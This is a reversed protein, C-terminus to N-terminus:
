IGLTADTLPTPGFPDEYADISQVEIDLHTLYDELVEITVPGSKEFTYDEDDDDNDNQEVESEDPLYGPRSRDLYIDGSHHYILLSITVTTLAIVGSIIGLLVLNRGGRELKPNKDSPASKNVLGTIAM